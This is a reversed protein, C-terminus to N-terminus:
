DAKEGGSAVLPCPSDRPPILVNDPRMVSSTQSSARKSSLYVCQRSLNCLEGCSSAIFSESAAKLLLERSVSQSSTWGASLEPLITAHIKHPVLEVENMMSDWVGPHSSADSVGAVEPCVWVYTVRKDVS